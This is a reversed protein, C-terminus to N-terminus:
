SLSIIFITKIFYKASCLSHHSSKMVSLPRRVGEDEGNAVVSLEALPEITVFLHIDLTRFLSPPVYYILNIIGVIAARM